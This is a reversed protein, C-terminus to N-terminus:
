WIVEGYLDNWLPNQTEILKLKRKRSSGKLKKERIIASEMTEHIEYFVLMKCRYKKTFISGIGIKHEYTRKVVASTVGTYITGNRKNAVMYVIPVKM